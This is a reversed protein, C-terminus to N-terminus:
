ENPVPNRCEIRCDPLANQLNQLGQRTVATGNLTVRTLADMQHLHALGEDTVETGDLHLGYIKPFTAAIYRVDDDNAASNRVSIAAAIEGANDVEDVEYETYWAVSGGLQEIPATVEDWESELRWHSLLNGGGVTILWLIGTGVLAIGALSLWASRRGPTDHSESSM